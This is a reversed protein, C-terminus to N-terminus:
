GRKEGLEGMNEVDDGIYVVSVLPLGLSYLKQLVSHLGAQDVTLKLTTIPPVENSSDNSIKMGNFNDLWRKNLVGPVKIEYSVAQDLTIEKIVANM